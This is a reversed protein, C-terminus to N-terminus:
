GKLVISGDSIFEETVGDMIGDKFNEKKVLFSGRNNTEISGNGNKLTKKGAQNWAERYYSSDEEFWIVKWPEGNDYFYTWLSDRIGEDFYGQVGLQGNKYWTKFISDQRNEKFFGLNFQKGNPHYTEVKGNFKGYRYNAVEKLTGDPHWYTWTGNEKGDLYIGEKSKIKKEKNHYEVYMQEIQALCVTPLLM